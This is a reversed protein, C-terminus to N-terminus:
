ILDKLEKLEPLTGKYKKQFSETFKSKITKGKLYNEHKGDDYYTVWFTHPSGHLITIHGTVGPSFNPTLLVVQATFNKHCNKSCISKKEFHFIM